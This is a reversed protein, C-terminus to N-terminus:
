ITVLQERVIDHMLDVPARKGTWLEFQFAGQHVFMSIGEVTVCGIREAAKLLHTKLPNYVIDMVVMERQLLETKLPAADTRPTMGVPTTNILINCSLRKVSALPRFEAGLERALKEGKDKSRNLITVRGKAKRIGFGIARAAGGAGIIVVDQGQISTKASLAAVAGLCDSNYGWLAGKRNIVTNVAGIKAALDDVHDLHPMIAVKHPITVSVGRVGFTRVGTMAAAIDAVRFALFVGDYGVHVFATNHMVPSLSHAVPDGLVAFIQPLSRDARTKQIERSAAIIDTFIRQLAPTRLPGKNLHFLRELISRERRRDLVPAGTQAKAKGIERAATLRRNILELIQADIADIRKRFEAIDRKGAGVRHNGQHSRRM